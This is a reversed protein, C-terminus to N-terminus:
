SWQCWLVGIVKVKGFDRPQRGDEEFIWIGLFGIGGLQHHHRALLCNRYVIDVLLLRLM